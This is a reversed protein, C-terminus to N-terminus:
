GKRRYAALLDNFAKYQHSDLEVGGDLWAFLRECDVNCLAWAVTAPPRWGTEEDGETAMECGGSQGRRRGGHCRRHGKGSLYRTGGQGRRRRGTLCTGEKVVDVVPSYLQYDVGHQEFLDFLVKKLYEPHVNLNGGSGPSRPDRRGPVSADPGWRRIADVLIRHVGGRDTEANDKFLFNIEMWM